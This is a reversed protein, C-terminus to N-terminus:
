GHICFESPTYESWNKLMPALYNFSIIELYHTNNCYVDRSLSMHTQDDIRLTFSSSKFTTCNCPNKDKNELYKAYSVVKTTYNYVSSINTFHKVAFDIKAGCTSKYNDYNTKITYFMNIEFISVLILIIIIGGYIVDKKVKM